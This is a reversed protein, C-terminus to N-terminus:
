RLSSPTLSCLFSKYSLLPLHHSLAFFPPALSLVGAGQITAVPPQMSAKTILTTDSTSKGGLWNQITAQFHYTYSPPFRKDPLLV